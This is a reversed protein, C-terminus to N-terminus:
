TVKAIELTVILSIPIMTNFLIFYTFFRLVANKAYETNDELYYHNQDGADIKSINWNYSLLAM